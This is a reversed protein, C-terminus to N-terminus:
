HNGRTFSVQALRLRSRLSSDSVEEEVLESIETRNQSSLKSCLCAGGSLVLSHAGRNCLLLSNVGGPTPPPAALGLGAVTPCVGCQVSRAEQCLRSPLPCGLFRFCMFFLPDGNMSQRNLALCKGELFKDDSHPYQCTFLESLYIQLKAASSCSLLMHSAAPPPVSSSAHSHSQMFTWPLGSFFLLPSIDLIVGLPQHVHVSAPGPCWVSTGSQMM